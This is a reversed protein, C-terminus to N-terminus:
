DERADEYNRAIAWLIISVAYTVVLVWFLPSTGQKTAAIMWGATSALFLVYLFASISRKKLLRMIALRM